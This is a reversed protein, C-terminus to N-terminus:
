LDLVLCGRARSVCVQMVTGRARDAQSLYTDRHDIEGRVVPTSCLGCYGSRCDYLVDAGADELVQLLTRDAPVQLRRGSRNLEVEFAADGAAPATDTFREFHVDQARWGRRAAGACVADIMGAPGCVYIPQAVSAADLLADISLRSPADDAHLHLADGCIEHLVDRFAFQTADRAAYHLEFPRKATSLAAAISLIPTIGIGGAILLVPAAPALAFHNVPPRIVVGDGAHLTHMRRSGGRGEDDRRVAITYRRVPDGPREGADLRLLSYSRWAPAAPAPLEVRVQVHAGADWAPLLSGDQSELTLRRVLPTLPTAEVVRMRLEDAAM